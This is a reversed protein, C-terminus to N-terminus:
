HRKNKSQKQRLIRSANPNHILPRYIEIRDGNKLIHQLSKKVGFIGTTISKFDINPFQDLVGSLIIAKAITCENPVKLSLLIQRNVDAYCVEIQMM